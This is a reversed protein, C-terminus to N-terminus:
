VKGDYIDDIAEHWWQLRIEGLMPESVSERIRSIEYNFAYLACLAGRKDQPAYLTILHRDHDFRAVVDRCYDNNM